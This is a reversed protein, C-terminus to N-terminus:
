PTVTATPIVTVTPSVTITVKASASSHLKELEPILARIKVFLAKIEDRYTEMETRLVSFLTKPDDSELVLDVSLAKAQIEEKLAVVESKLDAVKKKITTVDVTKTEALKNARADIRDLLNIFRDTAALLRRVYRGYMEKIRAKANDELKEKRDAQRSAIKEKMEEKKQSLEKQKEEMRAKLEEKKEDIKIREDKIKDDPKTQSNEVALFVTKNVSSSSSSVVHSSVNISVSEAEVLEPNFVWFVSLAILVSFVIQM